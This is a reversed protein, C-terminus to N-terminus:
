HMTSRSRRGLPTRLFHPFIVSLVSHNRADTVKISWGQWDMDDLSMMKYIILMAHEHAAALDTLERCGWTQVFAGDLTIHFIYQSM